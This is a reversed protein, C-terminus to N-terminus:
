RVRRAKRERASISVFEDLSRIGLTLGGVGAGELEKLKDHLLAVVEPHNNAIAYSMATDGGKDKHLVNVGAELLAKVVKPHGKGAACIVPTLGDVNPYNIDCGAKILTQVVETHGFRSARNVATSGYNNAHNVNAGAALLARVVQVHGKDSALILSSWGENEVHNVNAGAGILVNVVGLHGQLSAILLPTDILYANHTLTLDHCTNYAINYGHYLFLGGNEAAHNPDSGAALLALVCPTFGKECAWMVATWGDDDTHSVNAGVDILANVAATVGHDAAWFLPQWGDDDKFHVDAGAAVLAKVVEEHGKPSEEAEALEDLRSNLLKLARVEELDGKLEGLKANMEELKRIVNDFDENYKLENTSPALRHLHAANIHASLTTGSLSHRQTIILRRSKSGALGLAICVILFARLM